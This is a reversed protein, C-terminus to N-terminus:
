PNSCFVCRPGSGCARAKEPQQVVELTYTIERQDVTLRLHTSRTENLPQTMNYYVGEIEYIVIPLDDLYLRSQGPVYFRPVATPTPRDDSDPRPLLLQPGVTDRISPLRINKRGTSCGSKNAVIEVETPQSPLETELQTDPPSASKNNVPEVEISPLLPETDSQTHPQVEFHKEPPTAPEVPPQPEPEPNNNVLDVVCSRVLPEIEAEVDAM